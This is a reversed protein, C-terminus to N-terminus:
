VANVPQTEYRLRLTNGTLYPSFKSFNNQVIEPKVLETLIETTNTLGPAFESSTGLKWTASSAEFAAREGLILM